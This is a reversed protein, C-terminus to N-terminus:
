SGVPIVEDRGSDGRKHRPGEVDISTDSAARGTEPKLRGASAVTETDHSGLPAVALLLHPLIPVCVATLETIQLKTYSAHM